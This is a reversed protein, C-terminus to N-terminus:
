RYACQVRISVEEGLCHFTHRRAHVLGRPTGGGEGFRRYDFLLVALDAACLGEAFARWRFAARRQMRTGHSGCTAADRSGAPFVRRLTDNNVCPEIAESPM